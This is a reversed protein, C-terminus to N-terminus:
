GNEGEKATDPAVAAIEGPQQALLTEVQESLRDLQEEGLDPRVVRHLAGTRPLIFSWVEHGGELLTDEHRLVRKRWLLLALVFRFQVQQPEQADEVREFFAYIAERDFPQVKKTTPEPRHTRWSGVPGPEAPATCQSCYDRREYGAATEYLYAQFAEGIAFEHQCGTCVEARRPMSWENAL